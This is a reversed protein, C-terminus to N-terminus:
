ISLPSSGSKAEKKGAKRDTKKNFDNLCLQCAQLTCHPCTYMVIGRKQGCAGCKAKKKFTEKPWFSSHTCYARRDELATAQNEEWIKQIATREMQLREAEAKAAQEEEAKKAAVKATEMAHRAEFRKRAEERAEMMREADAAHSQRYIEEVEEQSLGTGYGFGSFGGGGRGGGHASGRSRFGPVFGRRLFDM